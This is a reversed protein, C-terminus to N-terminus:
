DFLYPRKKLRGLRLEALLGKLLSDIMKQSDHEFSLNHVYSLLRPSVGIRFREVQPYNFSIVSLNTGGLLLEPANRTFLLEEKFDWPAYPVYDGLATNSFVISMVSQSLFATRLRYALALTEFKRLLEDDLIERLEYNEFSALIKTVSHMFNQIASEDMISSSEILDAQEQLERLARPLSTLGSPKTAIELSRAFEYVHAMARLRANDGAADPCAYLNMQPQFLFGDMGFAHLLGEYDNSDAHARHDHVWVDSVVESRFIPVGSASPIQWLWYPAAGLDKRCDSRYLVAYGTAIAQGGIPGRQRIAKTIVAPPQEFVGLDFDVEDALPIIEWNWDLCQHHSGEFCEWREYAEVLAKEAERQYLTLGFVFHEFTSQGSHFELGSFSQESVLEILDTRLISLYQQHAKITSILQEHYLELRARSPDGILARRVNELTVMEFLFGTPYLSRSIRAVQAPSYQVKALDVIEERSAELAGVALMMQKLDVAPWAYLPNALVLGLFRDSREQELESALLRSGLIVLLILLLVRM